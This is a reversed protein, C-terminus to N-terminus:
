DQPIKFGLRRAEAFAKYKDDNNKIMLISSMRPTLPTDPVVRGSVVEQILQEDSLNQERRQRIDNAMKNQREEMYSKMKRDARRSIDNKAYGEKEIDREAEELEFEARKTKADDIFEQLDLVSQNAEESRGLAAQAAVLQQEIFQNPRAQAGGLEHVSSVFREKSATKFRASEPDRYMELGLEDVLFPILGSTNGSAIDRRQQELLGKKIPAERIISEASEIIPQSTKSHFTRDAEFDRRKNEKEKLEKALKANKGERLGKIGLNEAKIIEEDSLNSLDFDKTSINENSNTDQSSSSTASQGSLLKDLFGQSSQLNTTKAQALEMQAQQLPNLGKEPALQSAIQELKQQHALQSSVGHSFGGGIAKGFESSFSQKPQRAGIVQIPM